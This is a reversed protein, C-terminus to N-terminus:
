RQMQADAGMRTAVSHYGLVARSSVAGAEGIKGERNEGREQLRLTGASPLSVKHFGM